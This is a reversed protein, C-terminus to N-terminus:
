QGAEDPATAAVTAGFQALALAAKDSMNPTAALKLLLDAGEPTTLIRDFEQFTKALTRDEIKRAVREFPMFGYVRAVDALSSKGGAKAVDGWNLGGVKDPRSAMGKTIQMFHSLGRVMQDENLGYTRAMGVAIDRMGQEQARSAFLSDRLAKAADPSTIAGPVTEGPLSGFAKDLRGRLFAKAAAPAADPDAKRLENFMKPIDRAAEAVQADSGRSFIAELKDAPAQIASNYGKGAIQGVVSQKLPNYVDEYHQRFAANADRFPKSTDGLAERIDLITKQAYNIAGKDVGSTSLTPSSLKNAQSKLIENLHNGDQVPMGDAGVLRTRLRKLYVAKDTGSNAAIQDDLNRLIGDMTEKPARGLAEFKAQSAAVQSTAENFAKQAEDVQGRLQATPLSDAAAVQPPLQSKLTSAKVERNILDMDVSEGRKPLELLSGRANTGAGRPLQPAEIQQILQEMTARFANQKDVSAKDAASSNALARQLEILKGRAERQSATANALAQGQTAKLTQTSRDFTERWLASGSEKAQQLTKTAAEQVANAAQGQGWVPGPLGAVTTDALLELDKPQQNLTKQVQDGHRSNALVNRITALNSAPAGVAELAQALDLKVGTEAARAQLAQAAKLTEPPLGEVAERALDASQPRLRTTLAAGAQAVGGGALGGLFRGLPNNNTLQGGAEAGAGSAGGVIMNRLPAATGGPGALAGGVGEMTSALYKEGTTAPQAGSASNATSMPMGRVKSAEVQEPTAGSARMGLDFPNVISPINNGVFNGVDGVLAPLSAMGRVLGSGAVDLKRLVQDVVGGKKGGDLEKVQLGYEQQARQTVQEPTVDDPANKYQATSGDAFTVTIDRPM